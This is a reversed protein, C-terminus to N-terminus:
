NIVLINNQGSVTSKKNEVIGFSLIHHTKWTVLQEHKFSGIIWNLLHKGTKMLHLVNLYIFHLFLSVDEKDSSETEMPEPLNSADGAGGLDVEQLKELFFIWNCKLVIEFKLTSAKSTKQPSLIAPHNTM